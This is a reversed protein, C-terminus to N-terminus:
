NDATGTQGTSQHELQETVRRLEVSSAVTDTRGTKGDDESCQEWFEEEVTGALDAVCDDETQVDPEPANKDTRHGILQNSTFQQRETTPVDRQRDSKAKGATKWDTCPQPVPVHIKFDDKISGTIHFSETTSFM